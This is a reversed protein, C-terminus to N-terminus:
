IETLREKAENPLLSLEFGKELKSAVQEGWRMLKRVDGLLSGLGRLRCCM